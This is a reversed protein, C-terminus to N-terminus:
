DKKKFSAFLLTGVGLSIFTDAFNFTPFHIGYSHFDIFDIVKGHIIRDLANGLAGGSFMDFIGLIGGRHQEFIQELVASNIGPVPIYTGLRYVAIAFLVFGLKKFLGSSKIAESYDINPVKINM